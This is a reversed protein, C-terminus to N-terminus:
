LQTQVVLDIIDQMCFGIHKVRLGISQVACLFWRVGVEFVELEVTFSGETGCLGVGLLQCPRDVTFVV